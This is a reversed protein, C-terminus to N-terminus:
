EGFGGEMNLDLGADLIQGKESKAAPKAMWQMCMLAGIECLATWCFPAQLVVFVKRLLTIKM